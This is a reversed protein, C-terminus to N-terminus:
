ARGARPQNLRVEAINLPSPITESSGALARLEPHEPWSSTRVPWTGASWTGRRRALLRHDGRRGRIARAHSRRAGARVMCRWMPLMARSVSSASSSCPARSPRADGIESAVARSGGGTRRGTSRAAAFTSQRRQSCRRAGLATGEPSRALARRLAAAGRRPRDPAALVAGARRLSPSCRAARARAAHRPRGCTRPRGTSDRRAANEREALALAWQAHRSAVAETEGSEELQERAYMRVTDRATPLPARRAHGRGHRAVERRPTRPRRRDRRHRPRRRRLGGRGGRARVRGRLGCAPPLPGARGAGAARPEVPADRDADATSDARWPQWSRLLRFRDDLREAIAAPSLAGVRGAALELALPLGDLRFCIRAVDDANEEDLAFGPAAAAARDIFLSVAEYERLQELPPTQEPDPIDLSPVRFVVEGAVRLPERSTAVITLQPAFRLLRDCLVITEALVHECNDLVLLLARSSLLDIIADVLDQAPLARIDLAAAVAEAILRGDTLAALEVLAAGAEYSGEAGRALELALRTKGAGGTGALTLLRTRRLLSRLETLEQARGIFSSAEAPLGFARSAGLAASEEELEAALTSLEDRRGDAWDDYRNEPLLEGSYLSIAARYATSTKVRRADAAALEFRDVDIEVNLTLVEERLEIAEAALTRRAVHVAQHLNNAAAAPALDRWLVDMAQERHLRHGPALALLKVLERAKKLRWASAPVPVGDVEAAFGGLLSVNVGGM